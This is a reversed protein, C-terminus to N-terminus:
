KLGVRATTSNSPTVPKYGAVPMNSKFNESPSICPMNYGNVVYLDSGNITRGVLTKTLGFRLVGMVSSDVNHLTTSQPTQRLKYKNLIDLTKESPLKRQLFVSQASSNLGLLGFVVSFLVVPKRM